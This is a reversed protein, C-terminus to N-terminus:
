KILYWSTCPLVSYPLKRDYCWTHVASEVHCCWGRDIRDLYDHGGFFGGPKVKPWWANLDSWVNRFDHAGDIYVWDLQHDAFQLSAEVSTLQLLKVRPEATEIRQCEKLWEVWPAQKNTLEPYDDHPQERWPDVMVYRAGTWSKLNQKAFDGAAAGVEVGVGRLDMYNLWQGLEDRHKLPFVSTM